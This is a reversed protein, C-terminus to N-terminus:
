TYLETLQRTPVPITAPLHGYSGLIVSIGNVLADLNAPQRIQLSSACDLRFKTILLGCHIFISNQHLATTMIQFHRWHWEECHGLCAAWIESLLIEAPDEPKPKHWCTCQTPSAEWAMLAFPPADSGGSPLGDKAPADGGDNAVGPTTTTTSALSGCLSEDDEILAPAAAPPQTDCSTLRTSVRLVSAGDVCHVWMPNHNISLANTRGSYLGKQKQMTVKLVM